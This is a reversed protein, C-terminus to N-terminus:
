VCAFASTCQGIYADTQCDRYEGCDWLGYGLCVDSHPGTLVCDGFRWLSMDGNACGAGGPSPNGACFYCSVGNPNCLHKHVYLQSYALDGHLPRIVLMTIGILLIGTTAACTRAFKTNM